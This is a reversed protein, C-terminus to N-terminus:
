ATISITRGAHHAVTKILAAQEIPKSIYETCGADACRERDGIMANATLAIIPATVGIERLKATAQYGDLEPMQMDMLIVDFRGTEAAAVMDLAIQGNDALSVEAGANSLVTKILLQNDKGDEALLVRVGALAVSSPATAGQSRPSIAETLGSLMKVGNLPGTPVTVTFTSGEGVISEITIAGGLMNVLHKTIALGLGTGGYKRSTSIDAQVFPDFLTEIKEPPIGIGTDSVHIRLAPKHDHWAPLFSVEILVLGQETFKVANAVLNILAQRLRAKDSRIFEPLGDLFEVKLDIGKKDARMRMLSAVDAVMESANCPTLELDLQGSDVKSLDLINNILELLHKGNREIISLHENRKAVSLDDRRLQETFGLIATMPTRIEHSMNALFNDKAQNAAHAAQTSAVLAQERSYLTATLSDLTETLKGVEDNSLAELRPPEGTHTRMADAHEGLRTIPKIVIRQLLLALLALVFLGSAFVTIMEIWMATRGTAAIERPVETHLVLAPKGTIDNVTSHAKLLPSGDGVVWQPKSPDYDAPLIERSTGQSNDLPFMEFTLGLHDSLDKYLQEDIRRAMVLTGRIPGEGETTIIPCAAVLFQGSPTSIIGSAVAELDESNHLLLPHDAPLPGAHFQEPDVVPTNEDTIDRLEGWVLRGKDDYFHLLHLPTDVFVMSGISSKKFEDNLDVVFQYSDNWTAWDQCLTELKALEGEFAQRCRVAANSAVQEDLTVFEPYVVTLQIILTLACFAVPVVALVLIIKAKLSM